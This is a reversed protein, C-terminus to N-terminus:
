DMISDMSFPSKSPPAQNSSTPSPPMGKLLTLTKNRGPEKVKTAAILHAAKTQWIRGMM